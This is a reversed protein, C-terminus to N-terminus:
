SLNGHHQLVNLRHASFSEQGFLSVENRPRAVLQDVQFLMVLLIIEILFSKPYDKTKKLGFM